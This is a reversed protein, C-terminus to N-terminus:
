GLLRTRVKRAVSLLLTSLMEWDSRRFRWIEGFSLGSLRSFGIYLLSSTVLHNGALGIAAAPLGLVPLLLWLLLLNVATGAGVAASEVGPHNTGMMYPGLVASSSRIFVGVALIYILPVIELFSPGFLIRVASRAFVVLLLLIGGCLVGAVRACQAVLVRRGTADQAVRPILVQILTDPLLLIRTTSVSAVAFLGIESETAFFALILTGASVNIQISIRALYCRIGYHLISWLTAFELKVWRLGYKHRFIGASLLVAFASSLVFALMAGEPGWALLGVFVLTLVLQSAGQAALAVAFWKFDRLAALTLTFCGATAQGPVGLLSLYFTERSAKAFFPLPLRMILLGAGMALVSSVAILVSTHVIAESLSLTKSAVFYRGAADAGLLFFLYLLTLFLMGVAFSGRGAPGLFWALCSQTAM